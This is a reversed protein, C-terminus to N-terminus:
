VNLPETEKSSSVVLLYSSVRVGKAVSKQNALRGNRKGVGTKRQLNAIKVVTHHLKKWKM